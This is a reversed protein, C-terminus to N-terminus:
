DLDSLATLCANLQMQIFESDRGEAAETAAFCYERLWYREAMAEFRGYRSEDLYGCGSAVEQAERTSFGCFLALNIADFLRSFNGAWEWDLTIWRDATGKTVLINWENLDNHCAQEVFSLPPLRVLRRNISAPLQNFGRLHDARENLFRDLTYNACFRGPMARHLETLYMILEDPSKSVQGLCPAAIRESLLDGIQWNAAIM